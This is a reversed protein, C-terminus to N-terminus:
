SDTEPKLVKQLIAQRSPDSLRLSETFQLGVEYKMGVRRCYRVVAHGMRGFQEATVVVTSQVTFPVLTILQAGSASLDSCRASAQRVGGPEQWHLMMQFDVRYRSEPRPM